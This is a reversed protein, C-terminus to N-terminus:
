GPLLWSSLGSSRLHSGLIIGPFLLTGFALKPKLARLRLPAVSPQRHRLPYNRAMSHSKIM